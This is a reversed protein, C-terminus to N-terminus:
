STFKISFSQSASSRNMGFLPEGAATMTVTYKIGATVALGTCKSFDIVATIYRSESAPADGSGDKIFERDNSLGSTPVLSAFTSGNTDTMTVAANPCFTRAGGDESNLVFNYNLAGMDLFADTGAITDDAGSIRPRQPRWIKATVRPKAASVEIPKSESGDRCAPNDNSTCLKDDVLFNVIKETGGEATFAFATPATVFFPSITMAVEVNSGDTLTAKVTFVDGVKMNDLFKAYGRPAVYATLDFGSGGNSGPPKGWYADNLGFGGTGVTSVHDDWAPAETVLTSGNAKAKTLMDKMSYSGWKVVQCGPTGLANSAPNYISCTTQDSKKYAYKWFEKIDGDGWPLMRPAVVLDAETTGSDEAVCWPLGTCDVWADRIYVGSAESVFPAVLRISMTFADSNLKSLETRLKAPDTYLKALYNFNIPPQRWTMSTSLGNITDYKATPANGGMGASQDVQDPFGDGDDDIDLTNPLGDGDLDGGGEVDAAAFAQVGWEWEISDGPALSASSAKKTAALGLKGAGAPQGKTSAGRLTGTVPLSATSGTAKTSAYQQAAAYTITGLSTTKGPKAGVGGYWTTKKGKTKGISVPGGYSGNANVLHLTVKKGAKVGKPLTLTAKGGSIKARASAGTTYVALLQTGAAVGKFKATLKTAATAADAVSVPSVSALTAAAMLTALGKRAINRGTRM